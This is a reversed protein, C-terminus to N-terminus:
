PALAAHKVKEDLNRFWTCVSGRFVWWPDCKRPGNAPLQAPPLVPTHPRMEAACVFAGEGRLEPCVSERLLTPRSASALAADGYYVSHGFSSLRRRALM